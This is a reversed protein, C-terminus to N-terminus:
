WTFLSCLFFFLCLTSASFLVAKTEAPLFYLLHYVAMYLCVVVGLDVFFIHM